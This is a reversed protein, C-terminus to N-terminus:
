WVLRHDVADEAAQAAEAAARGQPRRAAGPSPQCQLAPRPLHPRGIKGGRDDVSRSMYKVNCWANRKSECPEMAMVIHTCAITHKCISNNAFSTCKFCALKYPNAASPIIYMPDVEKVMYMSNSIECIKDWSGGTGAPVEGRRLADWKSILTDSLSKYKTQSQSLLYFCTRGTSAIRMAKVTKDQNEVYLLAKKYMETNIWSIDISMSLADPMMIGAYKSINSTNYRTNVTRCCIAICALYTCICACYM